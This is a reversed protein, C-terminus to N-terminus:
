KEKERERDGEGERGHTHTHTNTHSVRLNSPGTLHSVVLLNYGHALLKMVQPEDCMIIIGLQLVPDDGVRLSDNVCDCSDDSRRHM